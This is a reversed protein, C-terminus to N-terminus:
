LHALKPMVLKVGETAGFVAAEHQKEVEVIGRGLMQSWFALEAELADSIHAPM